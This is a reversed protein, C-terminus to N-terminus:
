EGMVFSNGSSTNKQSELHIKCYAQRHRCFGKSLEPLFQVLGVSRPLGSTKIHQTEGNGGDHKTRHNWWVRGTDRREQRSCISSNIIHPKTCLALLCEARNDAPWTDLGVPARGRLQFINLSGWLGAVCVFVDGIVPVTCSKEKREQRDTRGPGPLPCPRSPASRDPGARPPLAAKCVLHPQGCPKYVSTVLTIM